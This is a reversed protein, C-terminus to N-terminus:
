GRDPDEENDEPFPEDETGEAIYDYHQPVSETYEELPEDM